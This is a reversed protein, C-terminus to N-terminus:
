NLQSLDTFSLFLENDEISVNLRCNELYPWCDPNEDIYDQFYENLHNGFEVESSKQLLFGHLKTEVQTLIYRLCDNRIEEM